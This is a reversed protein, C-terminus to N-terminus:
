AGARKLAHDHEAVRLDHALAQTVVQAARADAGVAQMAVDLLGRAFLGHGIEAMALERDEDCRVNGGAADVHVVDVADDVIVDGLLVFVIDVADAARAAGPFLADGERQEARERLRGLQVLDCFKRAEADNRHDKVFVATQPGCRLPFAGSM